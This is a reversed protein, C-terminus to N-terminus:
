PSSVQYLRLHILQHPQMSADGVDSQCTLRYRVRHCYHRRTLNRLTVGTRLKPPLLVAHLPDRLGWSAGLRGRLRGLYNYAGLIPRKANSRKPKGLEPLPPLTDRHM